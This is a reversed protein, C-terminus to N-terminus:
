AAGKEVVADIQANPSSRPRMAYSTAYDVLDGATMWLLATKYTGLPTNLYDVAWEAHTYGARRATGGAFVDDIMMTFLNEPAWRTMACAKAVQGIPTTLGRSRWDPRYWVGGSFVNRGVLQPASPCTVVCAEGPAKQREPDPYWLRLASAVDRFNSEGFDFFRAAHAAVVEGDSNRGLLCFGNDDNYAGLGADLIPVLPRWSARNMRNVEAMAAVPAFSLEVGRERLETDAKLFLRGLVDRPGHEVVIESLFNRRRALLDSTPHSAVPDLAARSATM